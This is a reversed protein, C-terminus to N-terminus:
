GIFCISSCLVCFGSKNPDTLSFDPTRRLTPSELYDAVAKRLVLYLTQVDVADPNHPSDFLITVLVWQEPQPSLDAWIRTAYDDTTRGRAQFWYTASLQAQGHDSLSVFRVPFDPQVLYPRSDDLTLGYVEFCREPRHHARWTNSPILMLSGSVGRWRFRLREASVAGDRTLWDIEAPTLPLRETVLEAPFYWLPPSETLGTAPRPAYLLSLILITIILVPTLWAPRSLLITHPNYTMSKSGNEKDLSSDLGQKQRRLLGVVAVAAVGFGLVGLPVHLMEAVLPWGAVQGVVVLVAVRALNAALLLLGFVAASLLWRLNLPHRELWTAALLFLAGTWLSKVGSCPLDVQSVSNELVLITDLGIAPVGAAALGDRVLTATAIRLPYGIFTQMHDGFPLTAILLLAVPLGQRWSRAPLWLGLLGYSALGFLSASLTNIDLFREALLYFVAGGLALALAPLYRQPATDFRLRLHGRRVQWVMLGIVGALAVQNTRFDERSFIIALYTFVSRYFWLWLGLLTLNLGVQTLRTIRPLNLM